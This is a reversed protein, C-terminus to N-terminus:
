DQKHYFSYMKAIEKALEAILWDPSVLQVTEGLRLMEQKIWFARETARVRINGNSLTEIERQNNFRQSVGSKVVRAVLIYEFETEEDKCYAGFKDHLPKLDTIKDVRYDYGKGTKVNLGYLYFSGNRLRLDRPEVVDHPVEPIDRSVPKKYIFSIQRKQRIFEHLNELTPRYLAYDRTFHTGFYNKNVVNRQQETLHSILKDLLLQVEASYPHGQSFAQKINVLLQNEEKTLIRKFIQKTVGESLLHYHGEKDKPIDHKSRLIELDRKFMKQGAENVNYFEKLIELHAPQSNEIYCLLREHRNKVKKIM